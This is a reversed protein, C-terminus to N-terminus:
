MPVAVIANGASEIARRIVSGNYKNKIGNTIPAYGPLYKQAAKEAAPAITVSSAPIPAVTLATQIPHSGFYGVGDAMMKGPTSTRIYLEAKEAKRGLNIAKEAAKRSNNHGLSKSIGYRINRIKRPAGKLKSFLKRKIIM